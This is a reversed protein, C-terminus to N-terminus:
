AIMFDSNTITAHALTGLVAFEVAAGSGSGDADYYLAGTTTNYLIYDNADVAAGTSSAVFNATSLTGTSTLTTFIANSLQITDTGATFDSITDTNTSTNLATNFVFTDAGSGGVLYDNGLGGNLINDTSNGV